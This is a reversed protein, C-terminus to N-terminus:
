WQGYEAGGSEQSVGMEGIVCGYSKSCIGGVRALGMTTYKRGGRDDSVWFNVGSFLLAIDWHNPDSDDGPNM